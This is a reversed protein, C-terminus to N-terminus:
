GIRKRMTLGHQHVGYINPEFSAIRYGADFYLKQAPNDVRCHLWAKAYGKDAYHKEFEELLSGAFGCGRFPERTAVSWVYPTGKSVESILCAVRTIGRECIWTPNKQAVSLARDPTEDLYGEEHIVRIAEYDDPDGDYLRIGM